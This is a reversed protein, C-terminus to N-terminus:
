RTSKTGSPRGAASWAVTCARGEDVRCGYAQGLVRVAESARALQAGLEEFLDNGLGTVRLM